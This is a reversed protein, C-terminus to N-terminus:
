KKPGRRALTSSINGGGGSGNSGNGINGSFTMSHFLPHNKDCLVPEHNNMLISEFPFHLIGCLEILFDGIMKEDDIYVWNPDAAVKWAVMTFRLLFSAIDPNERDIALLTAKGKGSKKNTLLHMLPILVFASHQHPHHSFPLIRTPPAKPVPPDVYLKIMEPLTLQGVGRFEIDDWGFNVHLQLLRSLKARLFDAFEIIDDQQIEGSEMLLYMRQHDPKLKKKEEPRLIILGNPQYECRSFYHHEEKWMKPDMQSREFEKPMERWKDAVPLSPSNTAPKETKGLCIEIHKRVENERRLDLPMNPDVTLTHTCVVLDEKFRKGVFMFNSRPIEKQRRYFDRRMTRMEEGQYLNWKIFHVHRVANPEQRPFVPNEVQLKLVTLIFNTIAIGQTAPRKTGQVTVPGYVHGEPTVDERSVTDFESLLPWRNHMAYYFRILEVFSEDTLKPYSRILKCLEIDLLHIQEM